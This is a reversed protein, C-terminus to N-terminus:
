RVSRLLFDPQGCSRRERKQMEDSCPVADTGQKNICIYIERLFRGGDACAVTITDPALWHNAAALDAKLEFTSKRLPEAPSQYAVPIKVKQRLDSALQHFAEQSLGSCTGHKKWEHGILKPSPYIAEYKRRLHEPLPERSCSQPYGKEYQPWLGHLTFGYAHRADCQDDDRADGELACWNPSWTLAMVFYDFDGAREGEAYAPRALALLLLLVAKM